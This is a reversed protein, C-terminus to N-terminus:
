LLLWLLITTGPAVGRGFGVDTRKQQQGIELDGAAERPGDLRRSFISSPLPSDTAGRKAMGSHSLYERDMLSQM